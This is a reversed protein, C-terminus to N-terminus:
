TTAIKEKITRAKSEVRGERLQPNQIVDLTLVNKKNICTYTRLIIRKISVESM